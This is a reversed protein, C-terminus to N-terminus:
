IKDMCRYYMQNAIPKVNWKDFRNGQKILEIGQEVFQWANIDSGITFRNKYDIKEKDLNTSTSYLETYEAEKKILINRKIENLTWPINDNALNAIKKDKNKKTQEKAYNYASHTLKDVISAIAFQVYDCRKEKLFFEERTNAHAIGATMLLIAILTKM